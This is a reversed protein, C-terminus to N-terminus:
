FYVLLVVSLFRSDPLLLPWSSGLPMCTSPSGASAMGEGVAYLRVHTSYCPRDTPQNCPGDVAGSTPGLDM